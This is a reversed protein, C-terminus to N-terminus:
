AKELLNLSELLKLSKKGEIDLIGSKAINIRLKQATQEDELVPIIKELETEEAMIAADKKVLSKANAHQHLDRAFPYPVCVTASQTLAMEALTTAGARCIVWRSRTALGPINPHFEIIEPMWGDKRSQYSESCEEAKGKGCLHIVRNMKPLLPPLKTNLATAGQSGGCILLDIDRNEAPTFPRVPNGTSHCKKALATSAYAETFTTCVARCFPALLRNIRGPIANQEFQVCPVGGLIALTGVGLSSFGGFLLAAEPKEHLRHGLLLKWLSLLRRIRGGGEPPAILKLNFQEQLYKEAPKGEGFYLVRHGRKELERGVVVGPLFHGGTGGCAVWYLSM